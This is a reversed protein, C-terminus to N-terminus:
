PKRQRTEETADRVKSDLVKIDVELCRVVDRQLVISEKVDVGQHTYMGRGDRAAV